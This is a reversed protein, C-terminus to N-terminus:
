APNTPGPDPEKRAALEDTGPVVGLVDERPLLDELAPVVELDAPLHQQEADATAEDEPPALPSPEETHDSAPKDNHEGQESM